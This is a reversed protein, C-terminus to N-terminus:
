IIDETLWLTLIHKEGKRIPNAQHLSFPNLYFSGPICNEFALVMGAEARVAINLSPFVTEGGEFQDDLYIINTILRQVNRSSPQKKSVDFADYHAEYKQGVEYKVFQFKETKEINWANLKCLMNRLQNLIKIDDNIFVSSSSRSKSIKGDRGDTVESPELKSSYKNIIKKCDSTKILNKLITVKPEQSLLIEKPYDM